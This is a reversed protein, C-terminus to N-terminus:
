RTAQSSIIYILCFICTYKKLKEVPQYYAILKDPDPFEYRVILYGANEPPMKPVLEEARINLYNNHDVITSFMTFVTYELRGDHNIETAIGQTM